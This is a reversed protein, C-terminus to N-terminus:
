RDLLGPRARDSLDPGGGLPGPRAPPWLPELPWPVRSEAIPPLSLMELRHQGSAAVDDSFAMVGRGNRNGSLVM